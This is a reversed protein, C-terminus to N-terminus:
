FVFSAETGKSPNSSQIQESLNRLLRNRLNLYKQGIRVREESTSYRKFRPLLDQEEEKLHHEVIEALVKVRASWKAPDSVQDIEEILRDAISHEVEGEFADARVKFKDESKMTAYLAKEECRSHCELMLVFNNYLKRRATIESDLNQLQKLCERLPKHDSKILSIIDMDATKKVAMMKPLASLMKDTSTKKARSKSAMSAGKLDGGINRANSRSKQKNTKTSVTRM